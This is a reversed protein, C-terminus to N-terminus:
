YRAGRGGDNQRKKSWLRGDDARYSGKVRGTDYDLRLQRGGVILPKTTAAAAAAAAAATHSVFTELEKTSPFDVYAFGKSQRTISNRAIRVCDKTTRFVTAIDEETATYPLNNVFITHCDKPVPLKLASSSSREKDGGSGPMNAPQITLYRSGLYYKKKKSSDLVKEYSQLSAFQIHGFGRLRGTDQWKPLRCELVDKVDFNSEFFDLVEKETSQFPIGEVFVTNEVSKSNSSSPPQEEQEDDDDDDKEDEEKTSKRKRKRKRKRKNDTTTAEEEEQEETVHKDDHQEEGDDNSGNNTNTNRDNPEEEASTM